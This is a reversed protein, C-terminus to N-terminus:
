YNFVKLLWNILLAAILFNGFWTPWARQVIGHRMEGLAFLRYPIQAVIALAMLWGLRHFRLSQELDGAALAIISRTLGCGPCEVGFLARSGCLTPLNVDLWPLSVSDSDPMQLLFAAVVVAIALYLMTRHRDRLALAQSETPNAGTRPSPLAATGTSDLDFEVNTARTGM